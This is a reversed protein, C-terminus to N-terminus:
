KLRLRKVLRLTLTDNMLLSLKSFSFLCKQKFNRHCILNPRPFSLCKLKKAIASMGHYKSSIEIYM